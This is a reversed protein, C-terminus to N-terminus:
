AERVHRTEEKPKAAPPKAPAKEKAPAKPQATGDAPKAEVVKEIDLPKAFEKGKETKPTVCEYVGPSGDPLRVTYRRRIFHAREQRDISNVEALDGKRDGSLITVTDGIVINSEQFM